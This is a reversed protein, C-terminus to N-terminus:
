GLDCFYYIAIFVIMRSELPLYCVLELVCMRNPNFIKIFYWVKNETICPNTLSSVEPLFLHWVHFLYLNVPTDVGSFSM